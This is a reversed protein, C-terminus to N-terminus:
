VMLSKIYCKNTALLTKILRGEELGDEKIVEFYLREISTEPAVIGVFSKMEDLIEASRKSECKINAKDIGVVVNEPLNELM